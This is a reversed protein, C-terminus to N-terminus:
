SSQPAAPATEAWLADMTEHSIRRELDTTAAYGMNIITRVGATIPYVRHLTTDTRMLYLDGPAFSASYTPGALLAHNIEPKDKNWKTRPVCQVFGGHEPAPCEIIWVLAFAYDDWHWGHTDGVEELRTIVYQEPEYPCPLVPEGAVETLLERLLESEYVAPIVSSGQAVEDRRVNRMRRPTNGTAAFRLDRRVGAGGVLNLVEKAVVAKLQEPVIFSLRAFGYTALRERAEALQALDVEHAALSALPDIVSAEM